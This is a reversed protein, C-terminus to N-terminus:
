YWSTNSYDEEELANLTASGTTGDSNLLMMNGNLKVEIVRTKPSEYTARSGRMYTIIKM